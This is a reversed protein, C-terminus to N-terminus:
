RCKAQLTLWIPADWRALAEFLFATDASVGLRGKVHCCKSSPRPTSVKLRSSSSAVDLRQKRNRKLPGTRAGRRHGCRELLLLCKEMLRFWM